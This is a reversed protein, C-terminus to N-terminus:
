PINAQGACDQIADKESNTIVGAKKLSNTLSAVGMVFKGHNASGAAIGAILDSVTCGDADVDNGAGSDCGDIVVTASTDSDPCDDDENPVGDGDTDPSCEALFIESNGAPGDPNDGTLDNFAAFAIHSGDSDISSLTIDPGTSATVQTFTNTGIDYLFIERNNDSNGGTIDDHSSFSIRTGDSSIEPLNNNELPSDTIQTLMMNTTDYLFVEDSGDMNGGTLDFSSAFTILTGDSNISPDSNSFFGMFPFLNTNTIQTFTNTGIEVLFIEFNGDANGLDPPNDPDPDPILDIESVFVIHTGDSSIKPQFNGGATTDTIQTFTTTNTDYLFIEPNLDMNGGTLDVQASFAIRTGDGNISTFNIGSPDMSNTIQTPNIMSNTDFLFVELNFDANGLDPPDPDPDPTLDNSSAFSIRTGDSNISPGFNGLPGPTNTIQTFVNTTDFLFIEENLDPNDMNLDINTRFAIRTGDSNISPESNGGVGTPTISDTIQEITCALQALATKPLIGLLLLAVLLGAFVFGIERKGKIGISIKSRFEKM